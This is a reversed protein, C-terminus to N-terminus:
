FMVSECFERIRAVLPAGRDPSMMKELVEGVANTTCLIPRLYAARQEFLDFLDSEVRETLKFKGLDDIFLVDVEMLSTFWEGAEQAGTGHAQACQRAFEGATMAMVSRGELVLRKVLLWFCRSKGKRTLGHGVLGRPGYQWAMVKALKSQPMDPHSAETKFYLPPCLSRFVDERTKVAREVELADQAIKCPDCINPTIQCGFLVTESQDYPFQVHCIRCRFRRAGPIENALISDCTIPVVASRMLAEVAPTSTIM